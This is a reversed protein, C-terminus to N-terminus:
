ALEADLGFTEAIGHLILFTYSGPVLLYSEFRWSRRAQPEIEAAFRLYVRDKLSYSRAPRLDNGLALFWM